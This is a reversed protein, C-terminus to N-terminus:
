VLVIVYDWEFLWSVSFVCSDSCFVLIRLVLIPVLYKDFRCVEVMWESLVHPTLIDKILRSYQLILILLSYSFSLSLNTKSYQFILDFTYLHAYALASVYLIRPVGCEHLELWGFKYCWVFGSYLYRVIFVSVYLIFSSTLLPSSSSPLVSSLFIILHSSPSHPLSGLDSSSFLITHIFLIITYYYYSYYLV